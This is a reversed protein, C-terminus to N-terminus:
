WHAKPHRGKIAVREFVPLEFEKKLYRRWYRENRENVQKEHAKAEYERILDWTVNMYSQWEPKRYNTFKVLYEIIGCNVRKGLLKNAKWWKVVPM